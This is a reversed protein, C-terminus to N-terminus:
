IVGKNLKKGMKRLRRITEKDNLNLEVREMGRNTFISLEMIDLDLDSIKVGNSGTFGVKFKKRRM